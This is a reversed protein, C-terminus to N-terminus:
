RLTTIMQFLLKGRCGNQKGGMGMQAMYKSWLLSGIDPHPGHIEEWESVHHQTMLDCTGVIVLNTYYLYCYSQVNFNAVYCKGYINM